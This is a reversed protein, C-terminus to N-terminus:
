FGTRSGAIHKFKEGNWSYVERLRRVQNTERDHFTYIVILHNPSGKKDTPFIYSYDGYAIDNTSTSAKLGYQLRNNKLVIIIDGFEYDCADYQCHFSVLTPHGSFGKDGLLKASFKYNLLAEPDGIPEFQISSITKGSDVLRAEASEITQGKEPNLLGFLVEEKSNPISVTAKLIFKGHVNEVSAQALCEPLWAWIIMSLLFYIPQNYRIM